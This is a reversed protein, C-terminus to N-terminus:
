FVVFVSQFNSSFQELNLRLSAFISTVESGNMQSKHAVDGFPFQAILQNNKKLLRCESSSASNIPQIARNEPCGSGFAIKQVGPASHQNRNRNLM